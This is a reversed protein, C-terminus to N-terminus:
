LWCRASSRRRDGRATDPTDRSAGPARPRRSAPRSRPRRSTRGARAARHRGPLRRRRGRPRRAYLAGIPAGTRTLALTVVVGSFFFPITFVITAVALAALPAAQVGSVAPFPIVLNAVHSVPLVVAFALAALPLATRARPGTRLDGAVFVAVAGAAMGLMAVSVAFFSLHYWTLVSLLRTDLVELMLTALTILFLGANLYRFSPPPVLSSLDLLHALSVAAHGIGKDDGAPREGGAQDDAGALVRRVGDHLRSM